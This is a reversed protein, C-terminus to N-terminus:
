MSKSLSGMRVHSKGVRNVLDEKEIKCLDPESVADMLANAGSIKATTYPKENRHNVNM